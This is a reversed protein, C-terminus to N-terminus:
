FLGPKSRSQALATPSDAVTSTSPTEDASPNLVATVNTGDTCSLTADMLRGHETIYSVKLIYQGKQLM